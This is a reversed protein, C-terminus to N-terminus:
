TTEFMEEGYEGEILVGKWSEDGTKLNEVM